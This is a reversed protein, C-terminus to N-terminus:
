ILSKPLLVLEPYWFHKPLLIPLQSAYCQLIKRKIHSMNRFSKKSNMIKYINDWRWNKLNLGYPYDTYYGIKPSAAISEGVKKTLIHDVHQGIGLPLFVLSQKLYSQIKQTVQKFLIQDNDSITGSFVRKGRDYILGHKYLRFAADTFGLHKWSVNLYKMACTDETLRSAAFSDLNTFGSANLYEKAFNSIYRTAFSTFLTLITVQYGNKQWNLIHDACSLAADDLHPSLIVIKRNQM